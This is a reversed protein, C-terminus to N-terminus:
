TGGKTITSILFPAQVKANLQTDGASRALRRWTGGYQGIEEVPNIVLPEEPLRQDVPPLKGASVLAKLMPAENFKVHNGAQLSIGPTVIAATTAASSQIFTRRSIKKSM